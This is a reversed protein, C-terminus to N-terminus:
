RMSRAPMMWILLFLIFVLISMSSPAVAQKRAAHPPLLEAGAM